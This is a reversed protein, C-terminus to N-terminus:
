CFELGFDRNGDRSSTSTQNTPRVNKGLARNTWVAFDLAVRNIDSGLVGVSRCRAFLGGFHLIEFERHRSTGPEETISPPILWWPCWCLTRIAVTVIGSPGRM